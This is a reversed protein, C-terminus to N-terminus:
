VMRDNMYLVFGIILYSLFLSNIPTIVLSGLGIYGKIKMITIIFFVTLALTVLVITMCIKKKNINIHYVRGVKDRNIWLYIGIIVFGIATSGHQMIKYVPINLNFLIINNRLFDINMVFYGYKHTFADWFVHTSMGILCSYTFKIIYNKNSLINKNKTMYMYRSSIFNPLTYIFVDLIYKYFLYNLLFCMPLNFLISGWLTHGVNSSPSFLVFYIMDPAMSGLILGTLDFYRSKFPLVISPHALTFPM